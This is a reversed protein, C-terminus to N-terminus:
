NDRIQAFQQSVYQMQDAVAGGAVAAARQASAVAELAEGLARVVRAHTAMQITGLTASGIGNIEARVQALGALYAQNLNDMHRAVALASAAGSSAGAVQSTAIAGSMTTVGESPPPAIAVATGGSPSPNTTASGVVALVKIPTSPRPTASDTTFPRDTIPTPATAASVAVPIPTQTPRPSVDGVVRIPPRRDDDVGGHGPPPGPSTPPPPPPVPPPQDAPRGPDTYRPDLDADSGAQWRGAQRITVADARDNWWKRLRGPQGANAAQRGARRSAAEHWGERWANALRAGMGDGPAPTIGAATLRQIRAEASEEATADRTLAALMHCVVWVAVVASVPDM